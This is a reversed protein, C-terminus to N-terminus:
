QIGNHTSQGRSLAQQADTTASYMDLPLGYELGVIGEGVLCGRWRAVESRSDKVVWRSDERRIRAM